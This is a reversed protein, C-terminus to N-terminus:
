GLVGLKKSSSARILMLREAQLARARRRGLARPPPPPLRRRARGAAVSAIRVLSRRLSPGRGHWAIAASARRRPTARTANLGAGPRRGPRHPRPRRPREPPRAGHAHVPAPLRLRASAAVAAPQRPPRDPRPLGARRPDGARRRATRASADDAALLPGIQAAERGDRPCSAASAARTSPSMRRAHCARRWRACCRPATPASRPVTSPSSRRGTPMACRACRRRAPAPRPPARLRHPVGCGIRRRASTRRASLPPIGLQRRFGQRPLDSPRGAHRGPDRRHRALRPRRTRAGLLQSAYGRGRPIRAAGAGHQGMRLRQRLAARRGVRRAARTRCQRSRSHGLRARTRADAALRGPEPEVVGRGVARARRGSDAARLPQIPAAERRIEPARSASAGAPGSDARRTRRQGPDETSAM